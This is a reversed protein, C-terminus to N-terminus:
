TYEKRCFVQVIMQQVRLQIFDLEPASKVMTQHLHATAPDLKTHRDEEVPWQASQSHHGNVGIEM